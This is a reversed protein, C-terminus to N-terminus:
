GDIGRKLLTVTIAWLALAIILFYTAAQFDTGDPLPIGLPALAEFSALIAVLGAGLGLVLYLGQEIRSAARKGPRQTLEHRIRKLENLVLQDQPNSM